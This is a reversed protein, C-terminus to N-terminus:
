LNSRSFKKFNFPNTFLERNYSEEAKNYCRSPPEIHPYMLSLPCYSPFGGIIDVHDRRLVCHGWEHYLLAKRGHEDLYEWNKLSVVVIKSRPVCYAAVGPDVNDSFITILKYLNLNVNHHKADKEFSDLYKRFEPNTYVPRNSWKSVIFPVMLIFVLLTFFVLVANLLLFILRM